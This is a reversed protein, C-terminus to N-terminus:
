FHFFERRIGELHWAWHHDRLMCAVHLFMRRLKGFSMKMTGTKAIAMGAGFENALRGALRFLNASHLLAKRPHLLDTQLRDHV